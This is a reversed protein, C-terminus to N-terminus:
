EFALGASLLVHTCGQQGLAFACTKGMDLCGPLALRQGASLGPVAVPVGDM